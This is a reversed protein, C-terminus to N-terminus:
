TRWLLIGVMRKEYDGEGITSSRQQDLMPHEASLKMAEPSFGAVSSRQEVETELGKEKEEENAASRTSGYLWKARREERAKELAELPSLDRPLYFYTFCGKEHTVYSGFDPGVICHWKGNSASKHSKEMRKKIFAALDNDWGGRVIADAAVDVASQRLHPKMDGLQVYLPPTCLSGRFPLPLPPPLPTTRAEKEGGNVDTEVKFIALQAIATSKRQFEM